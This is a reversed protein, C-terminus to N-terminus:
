YLNYSLYLIIDIYMPILYQVHFAYIEYVVKM